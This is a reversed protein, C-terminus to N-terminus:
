ASLSYVFLLIEEVSDVDANIMHVYRAPMKSEPSWGHRKRLQAETM